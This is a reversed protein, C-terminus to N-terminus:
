QANTTAGFTAFNLFVNWCNIFYPLSRFQRPDTPHASTGVSYPVSSRDFRQSIPSATLESRKMHQCLTPELAWGVFFVMTGYVGGRSCVAADSM